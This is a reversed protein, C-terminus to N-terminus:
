YSTIHILVNNEYMGYLCSIYILQEKKQFHRQKKNDYTRCDRKRDMFNLQIYISKFYKLKRM